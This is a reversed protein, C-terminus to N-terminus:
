TVGIGTVFYYFVAWVATQWLLPTSWAYALGAFPVVILQIIYLWNLHLHWDKWTIPFDTIHPKRNSNQSPKDNVTSSNLEMRLHCHISTYPRLPHVVKNKSGERIM